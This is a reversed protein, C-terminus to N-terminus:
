KDLEKLLKALLSHDMKEAIVRSAQEAQSQDLGKQKAWDRLRNQLEQRKLLLGQYGLKVWLKLEPLMTKMGEYLLIALLPEWNFKEGSKPPLAEACAHIFPRLESSPTTPM